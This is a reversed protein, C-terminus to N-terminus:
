TRKLPSMGPSLGNTVTPRFVGSGRVPAPGSRRLGPSCRCTSSPIEEMWCVPKPDGGGCFELCLLEPSSRSWLLVKTRPHPNLDVPGADVHTWFTRILFRSSWSCVLSAVFDPNQLGRFWHCVVLNQARTVTLDGVICRACWTLSGAMHGAARALLFEGSGQRFWLSQSARKQRDFCRVSGPGDRTNETKRRPHKAGFALSAALM